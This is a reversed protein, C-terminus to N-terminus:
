SLWIDGNAPSAPATTRIKNTTEAATASDAYRSSDVRVGYTNTGNYGMLTPYTASWAVDPNTNNKAVGTPTTGASADFITHSNGYNKWGLQGVVASITGNTVWDARTTSINTVASVSHSHSTITGTLQAEIQAKTLTTVTDANTAANVKVAAVSLTYNGDSSTTNITTSAAGNITLTRASNFASATSANGTVPGSFGTATIVGASFSGDTHRKVIMSATNANTADSINSSTHGHLNDVVTVVINSAASGDFNVTGTADGSLSIARTTALKTATSANGTVAGTLPGSFGTATIVGASFSGDTHRKVIMSATNANTADSINSSTHSHLNDVVTVVINSAASGDFSVSGTADGSLSISRATALKTATSANGTVAGTLNGTIMTTSVTVGSSDFRKATGNWYPIANVTPTDQRTAVAQLSAVEGVVFTDDSERFLFNYNNSDGREIEIGSTLGTSPIGTQNKNLTIINDEITLTTTDITTTTGNVTLNGSLTLDTALIAAASFGGSGDRKVIMNATAANTADSINSSTHSHLNDVVTVIIDNTASSGDFSVSGTADGSLSISRATELKTSTSANGTLPGSFGTATMTGSVDANGNIDIMAATLDIESANLLIQGNASLNTFEINKSPTTAPVTWELGGNAVANIENDSILVLSGTGKAKINMSKDVETAFTMTDSVDEIVKKGNVYLSSAGVHIEDAWLNKFRHTTDGIDRVSVSGTAGTMDPLIKTVVLDGTMTDGSVNVFADTFRTMDALGELMQQLNSPAGITKDSPTIGTIGKVGIIASGPTTGQATVKEVYDYLDERNVNLAGMISTVVTTGLTTSRAWTISPQTYGFKSIFGTIGAQSIPVTSTLYQDQFALNSDAQVITDGEIDELVKKGNVYISHASVYVDDAYLANVYLDGGYNLRDHADPKINGSYFVGDPPASTFTGAYKVAGSTEASGATVLRTSKFYRSDLNLGSALDNETLLNSTIDATSGYVAQWRDTSDNWKLSANGSAREVSYTADGDEATTTNKIVFDADSITTNEENAYITTGQVVLDGPITCGGNGDLSLIVTHSEDEFVIKDQASSGIMFRLQTDEGSVNRYIRLEDSTGIPKFYISDNLYLNDWTYTSTGLDHIAAQGPTLDGGVTTDGTLSVSGTLKNDVYSKTAYVSLETSDYVIITIKDASGINYGSTFVVDTYEGGTGSGQAIQYDGSGLTSYQMLSGNLYVFLNSADSAFGTESRFITGTVGSWDEASNGSLVHVKTEGGAEGLAAYYPAMSIGIRTENTTSAFFIRGAQSGDWTIGDGKVAADFATFGILYDHLRHRSCNPNISVNKDYGSVDSIIRIDGGTVLVTLDDDTVQADMLTAVSDYSIPSTQGTTSISYEKGNVEFYYITNIALGSDGTGTINLGFEQYGAGSTAFTDVVNITGKSIWGQPDAIQDAIKSQQISANAAVHLDSIAYQDMQEMRIRPM